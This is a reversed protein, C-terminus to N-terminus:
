VGFAEQIMNKVNSKSQAGKSTKVIENEKLFILTPVSTIGYQIALDQQKDVDIDVVEITGEYDKAIGKIVPAMARCPACWEASFRLIKNKM